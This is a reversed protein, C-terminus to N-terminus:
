YMKNGNHLSWQVFPCRFADQSIKKLQMCSYVILSYNTTLAGSAITVFVLISFFERRLLKLTVKFYYFTIAAKM